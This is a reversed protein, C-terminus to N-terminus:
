LYINKRHDIDIVLIILGNDRVDVIVRYEGIKYRVSGKFNGKLTEKEYPNDTGELNKYDM